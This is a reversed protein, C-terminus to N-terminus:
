APTDSQEGQVALVAAVIAQKGDAPLWYGAANLATSITDLLVARPDADQAATQPGPTAGVDRVAKEGREAAERASLGGPPTSNPNM